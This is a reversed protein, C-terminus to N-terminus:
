IYAVTCGLDLVSTVLDGHEWRGGMSSERELRLDTEQM